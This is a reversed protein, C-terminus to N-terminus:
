RAGKGLFVVKFTDIIVEIDLLISLNKIYYLDYQLKEKADEVSAGYSYRVQAWGTIGPKVAHRKVYYPIQKELEKVFYPREPRPGVFSMDGRVVNILQPIEDLRSKRLFRGLPTVREDEDAAWVPGTTEEAGEHMSRFKYLTFVKDNQGVREQRFLVPGPSELKIALAILVTLPFLVVLAIAAVVFESVRKFGLKFRAQDFGTSFILWSPRLKDVLIKGMIKEYLDVDENIEVGKMRCELLADMPLRGRREDVSVVIRSIRHEEVIRTIDNFNGLVEFAVPNGVQRGPHRDVFGLVRYGLSRNATIEEALELSLPNSGIILINEEMGRSMLFWRYALRWCLIYPLIISASILSVGRGTMLFPFIYYLAALIITAVGLAQMLRILLERIHTIVRTNYLGGYYLCTLCVVATLSAKPIVWPHDLTGLRLYVGTIVSFFILAGEGLFMVTKKLHLSFNLFKM